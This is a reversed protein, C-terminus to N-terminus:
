EHDPTFRVKIAGSSKDRATEFAEPADALSFTHTVLADVVHRNDALFDIAVQFDDQIEDHGYFISPIIDIEKMMVNNDLTVPTWFMGFELLRGGPRTAGVCADFSGQTCVADFTTDYIGVADNVVQLGLKEAAEQQHRHRAIIDVHVGSRRLVAGALLGISGAGVVLARSGPVARARHIGHVVVATPEVLCIDAPDITPPVDYLRSREVLAYRALGGDNSLGTLSRGAEACTQVHRSRCSPCTGCQGTPRVAVMRGDATRGGFEHGLVVGSIGMSVMHLDSGCISTSTIEILEGEGVPIDRDEVHISGGASTVALM